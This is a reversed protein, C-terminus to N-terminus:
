KSRKFLREGTSLVEERRLDEESKFSDYWM